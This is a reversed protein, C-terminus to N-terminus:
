LHGHFGRNRDQNWRCGPNGQKGKGAQRRVARGAISTIRWRAASNAWQSVGTRRTAKPMPSPSNRRLCRVTPKPFGRKRCPSISRMSTSNVTKWRPGTPGSSMQMDGHPNAMKHPNESTDTASADDNNATDGVKTAKKAGTPQSKSEWSQSSSDSCGICFVIGLSALAMCCLNKM